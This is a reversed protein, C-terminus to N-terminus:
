KGRMKDGRVENDEIEQYITVHQFFLDGYDLLNKAYEFDSEKFTKLLVEM